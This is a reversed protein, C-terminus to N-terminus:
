QVSPNDKTLTYQDCGSHCVSGDMCGASVRGGERWGPVTGTIGSGQLPTVGGGGGGGVSMVASWQCIEEEGVVGGVWGHM